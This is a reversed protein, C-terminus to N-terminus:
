ASQTVNAQMFLAICYFNSQNISQCQQLRVTSSPWLPFWYWAGNPPLLLCLCWQAPPSDAARRWTGAAVLYGLDLKCHSITCDAHTKGWTTNDSFYGEQCMKNIECRPTETGGTRFGLCSRFSIDVILSQCCLKRLLVRSRLFVSSHSVVFASVARWVNWAKRCVM